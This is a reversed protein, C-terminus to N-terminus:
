KTYTGILRSGEPTVVFMRCDGATDSCATAFQLPADTPATRPEDVAAVPMAATTAESRAPRPYRQVARCGKGDCYNVTCTQATCAVVSCGASCEVVPTSGTAPAATQGRAAPPVAFLLAAVLWTMALAITPAKM